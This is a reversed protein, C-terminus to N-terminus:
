QLLSLAPNGCEKHQVEWQTWSWAKSVQKWMYSALSLVPLLLYVYKVKSVYAMLLNVWYPLFFLWVLKSESKFWLDFGCYPLENWQLSHLCLFKPKKGKEGEWKGLNVRFLVQFTFLIYRTLITQYLKVLHLNRSVHEIRSLCFAYFCTIKANFSKATVYDLQSFLMRM